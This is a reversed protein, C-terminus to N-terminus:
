EGKKGKGDQLQNVVKQIAEPSPMMKPKPVFLMGQFSPHGGVLSSKTHRSYIWGGPVALVEFQTDEGINLNILDGEAMLM